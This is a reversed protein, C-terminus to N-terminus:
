EYRNFMIQTKLSNDEFEKSHLLNGVNKANTRFVCTGLVGSDHTLSNVHLKDGGDFTIRSLLVIEYYRRQVQDNQLKQLIDKEFELFEDWTKAKTQTALLVNINEEGKKNMSSLAAQTARETIALTAFTGVNKTNQPLNGACIACVGGDGVHNCSTPTRVYLKKQGKADKSFDDYKEYIRLLNDGFHCYMDKVRYNFTEEDLPLVVEEGIDGCDNDIVRYQDQNQMLEKYMTGAKRIDAVNASLVSQIFEESKEHTYVHKKNSVRESFAEENDYHEFVHKLKASTKGECVYKLVDTAQPLKERVHLNFAMTRYEQIYGKRSIDSNVRDIESTTRYSIEEPIKNRITGNAWDRYNKSPLMTYAEKKAEDSFLSIVFLQDGDFDGAFGDMVIPNVGITRIGLTDTGTSEIGELVSPRHAYGGDKFAGVPYCSAIRPYFAQFSLVSITPPRNILLVEKNEVFHRNIETMSGNYKKYLWPYLTRVFTDGILVIDEDLDYRNIAVGKIANTIRHGRINKTFFSNKGDFLIKSITSVYKEYESYLTAYYTLLVSTWQKKNATIDVVDKFDLIFNVHEIIKLISENIDGLILKNNEGRVLPRYKPHPIYLSSTTNEKVWEEADPYVLLVAEAGIKVLENDGIEEDDLNYVIRYEDKNVVIAAQYTLLPNALPYDSYDTYLYPVNCHLDFCFDPLNQEDVVRTQCIDCFGDHTLAGCKCAGVNGFIRPSFIGDTHYEMQGDILKAYPKFLKETKVVNKADLLPKYTKIEFQM